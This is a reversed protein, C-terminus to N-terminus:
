KSLSTMQKSVAVTCYILGWHGYVNMQSWRAPTQSHSDWKGKVSIALCQIWMWKCSRIIWESLVSVNSKQLLFGSIVMCIRVTTRFSSSFLEELECRPESVHEATACFDSHRWTFVTLLNNCWKTSTNKIDQRSRIEGTLSSLCSHHQLQLWNSCQDVWTKLGDTRKFNWRNKNM